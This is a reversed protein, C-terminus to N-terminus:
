VQVRRAMASPLPFRYKGGAIHWAARRATYGAGHLFRMAPGFQNATALGTFYLGPVTSEFNPSVSPTDGACCLQSRLHETLFPLAQLRFKYGTAAIVHDTVLEGSKGDGSKLQLRVRDGYTGAAIVSHGTMISLRGVIRDKLWWAGAPGFAKQLRATRIKQPLYRFLMPAKSYLWPGAGPGLESMPRRLREYVSRESAIPNANWFISCGRVILRVEAGGENLLAATELASQGGGIVAVERGRFGSLDNYSSSHSVLESPLKRLNPPVYATHSMGTAIVVKRATLTEGTETQLKFMTSSRDLATVNALEVDPVLHQQFSLGYDTFAELSVPVGKEACGLGHDFCYQELTHGGAPDFLSSACRESKLFMGRPMHTRWHHLPEGFIRFDIRESRLHAAISLGYPGAGIIAVTSM